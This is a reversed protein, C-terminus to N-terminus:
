KIKEPPYANYILEKEWTEIRAVKMVEDLAAQVHLKAFKILMEENPTASNRFLFQNATPLNDM